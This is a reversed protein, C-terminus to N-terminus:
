YLQDVHCKTNNNSSILNMEQTYENKKLGTWIKQQAIESTQRKFYGYQQKEEWKEKRTKATKNQKNKHLYYQEQGGYNINKVIIM